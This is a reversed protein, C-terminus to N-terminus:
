EYRLAEIPDKKAAKIAPYTGFVTGVGVSFVFALVVAWWPIETRIFNRAVLSGLWGIFLGIMGGGVSLMISEILFQIAINNPTAGVAKRLGIERTRETVSVLMINMIGIGGVVLSIGAIGGIALTLMGLIDQISSLIYKQSLVSFDDPKLDRLLAIEIQKMATDINNEDTVKIAIGSLQKIDFSDMASTYPMIIGNDYNQGKPAFTGIVEYSDDGIKASKGLPNLNGFLEKSVLPGLIAVKAKGRVESKTFFRGSDLVYNFINVGEDNMANISAYYSKTKYRATEGVSIWPTTSKVFEKAQTNVLEVHKIDLKNRTFSEAPDRGFGSSGPSVFVLNSGLAEFQDTIYNQAGKGLAVMMVVAFVGIIVGLMTLASRVKNAGLAKISTKTTELLNM